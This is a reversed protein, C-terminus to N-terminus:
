MNKRSTDKRTNIIEKFIDKIDSMFEFKNIEETILDKSINQQISEDIFLEMEKKIEKETKGELVKINRLINNAMIEVLKLNKEKERASKDNNSGLEGFHNEYIQKINCLKMLREKKTNKLDEISSLFTYHPFGKQIEKFFEISKNSSKKNKFKSVTEKINKEYKTTPKNPINEVKLMHWIANEKLQDLKIYDDSKAIIQYLPKKIEEFAEKTFKDIEKDYENLNRVKEDFHYFGRKLYDKDFGVHANNEIQNVADFVMGEANMLAYSVTKMLHDSMEPYIKALGIFTPSVEEKLFTKFEISKKNMESLYSIANCFDTLYIERKIKHAKTLGDKEINEKLTNNVITVINLLSHSIEKGSKGLLSLETQSGILTISSIKEVLEKYRGNQVAVGKCMETTEGLIQFARKEEEKIEDKIFGINEEDHNIALSVISGDVKKYEEFGRRGMKISFEIGELHRFWQLNQAYKKTNATAWGVYLTEGQNTYPCGKVAGDPMGAAALNYLGVGKSNITAINLGKENVNIGLEITEFFKEFASKFDQQKKNELAQNGNTTAEEFLQHLKVIEKNRDKNGEKIIYEAWGSKKFLDLKLLFEAKKDKSLDNIFYSVLPKFFDEELEIPKESVDRHAQVSQLYSKNKWQAIQEVNLHMRFESVDNLSAITGKIYSEIFGVKKLLNTTANTGFIDNFENFFDYLQMVKNSENIDEHSLLDTCSICEKKIYPLIKRIFNDHNSEEIIQVIEKRKHFLTKTLHYIEQVNKIEVLELNRKLQEMVAKIKKRQTKKNYAM